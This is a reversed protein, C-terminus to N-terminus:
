PRKDVGLAARHRPFLLRRPKSRGHHQATPTATLLSPLRFSYPPRFQHSHIDLPLSYTPLPLFPLPPLRLPRTARRETGHPSHLTDTAACVALSPWLVCRAVTPDVRPLEEEATPLCLSDLVVAVCLNAVTRSLASRFSCAGLRGRHEEATTEVAALEGDELAVRVLRRAASGEEEVALAALTVAEEM